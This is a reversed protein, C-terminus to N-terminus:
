LDNSLIKNTRLEELEWKHWKVSGNLKQSISSQTIHLLEALFSQNKANMRLYRKIENRIKTKDM